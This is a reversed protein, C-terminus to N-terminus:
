LAVAGIYRANDLTVPYYMAHSVASEQWSNSKSRDVQKCTNRPIYRQGREPSVIFTSRVCTRKLNCRKETCLEYNAM